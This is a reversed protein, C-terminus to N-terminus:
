WSSILRAVRWSTALEPVRDIKGEAYRYEIALNQGEIYGRERLALRIAESRASDSAADGGALYGIRWIKKPQQAEATVGLALLVVAVLKSPVAARKM